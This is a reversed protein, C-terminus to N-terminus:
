AKVNKLWYSYIRKSIDLATEADIIDIGNIECFDEMLTVQGAFTNLVDRHSKLSLGNFTKPIDNNSEQEIGLEGSKRQIIKKKGCTICGGAKALAAEKIENYPKIIRVPRNPQQKLIVQQRTNGEAEAFMALIPSREERFTQAIQLIQASLINGQKRNEYEEELALLAFIVDAVLPNIFDSKKPKKLM